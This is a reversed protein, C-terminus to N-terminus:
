HPIFDLMDGSEVNSTGTPLVVFGDSQSLSVLAASGTNKFSEVIPEGAITRGVISVMVYEQMAKSSKGCFQARTSYHALPQYRAGSLKTIIARGILMQNIYAAVPNGPLGLFMARGITGVVVPKGPKIAIKQVHLIGGLDTIIGPIHDEDGVSVGGTTIVMDATAAAQAMASKLLDPNDKICGLDIVKVFPLDLQSALTYRNSNYIQGAALAQGPSRLESGTSFIAIRVKRVVVVKDFGQAALLSIQRPGLRTGVPILLEGAACEEGGRRINRGVDPCDEFVIHGAEVQCFEQMIVTNYGGPVLAGTLIRLAGAPSEIVPSVNADGAAMRGTIKLRFPGDGTLSLTNIAYGDMASNDFNPLPLRSVMDDCCIRGHAASLSVQETEDLATSLELAKDIADEVPLLMKTSGPRLKATKFDIAAQLNM